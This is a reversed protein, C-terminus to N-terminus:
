TREYATEKWAVGYAFKARPKDPHLHFREFEGSDPREKLVVARRAVRLAERWADHALPAPNALGRVSELDSSPNHLPHRFMPDFYVVDVANDSMQQLVAVHDGCHAEIRALLPQLSPYLHGEYRQAYQFLRVLLWSSDCALVRGTDGVAAALVLSDVALGFTADLVVDGRGIRAVRVLRDRQGRAYCCHSAAGYGPSVM